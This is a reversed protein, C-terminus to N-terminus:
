LYGRWIASHNLIEVYGEFTIDKPWLWMNGSNVDTPNSISASLVYVLPYLVVLMALTLFVYNAIKFFRDNKAEKIHQMEIFIGGYWVSIESRNKEFHNVAILLILHILANFFGVATAFSYQGELLGAKYVFTAIVNTSGLNLSNQFLLIKEFGMAMILGVS